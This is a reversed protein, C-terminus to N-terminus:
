ENTNGAIFGALFAEQQDITGIWQNNDNVFGLAQLRQYIGLAVSIISPKFKFNIDYKGHPNKIM